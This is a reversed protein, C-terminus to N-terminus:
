NGQIDLHDPLVDVQATAVLKGDQPALSPHQPKGRAAKLLDELSVSLELAGARFSIDVAAGNNARRAAQQVQVHLSEASQSTTSLVNLLARQREDNISIVIPKGSM